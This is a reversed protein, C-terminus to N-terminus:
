VCRQQTNFHKKEKLIVALAEGTCWIAEIRGCFRSRGNVIPAITLSRKPSRICPIYNRYFHIQATTLAFGGMLNNRSVIIHVHLLSQEGYINFLRRFTACVTVRARLLIFSMNERQAFLILPRITRSRDQFSSNRAFLLPFLKGKKFVSVKVANTSHVCLRVFM